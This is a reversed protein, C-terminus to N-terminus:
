EEEAEHDEEEVKVKRIMWEQGPCSGVPEAKAPTQAQGGRCPAETRETHAGDELRPAEYGTPLIREERPPCMQEQTNHSGEGPESQPAMEPQGVSFGTGPLFGPGLLADLVSSP